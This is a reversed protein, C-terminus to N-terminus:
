CLLSLEGALEPHTLCICTRLARMCFTTHQLRARAGLPPGRAAPEYGSEDDDSGTMTRVVVALSIPDLV